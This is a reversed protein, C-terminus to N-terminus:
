EERVRVRKGEDVHVAARGDYLAILEDGVLRKRWGTLLAPPNGNRSGALWAVVEDATADPRNTAAFRRLYSMRTRLTEPRHQLGRERSYDALLTPWSHTTM